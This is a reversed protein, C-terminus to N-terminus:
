LGSTAQLAALTPWWPPQGLALSLAVLLILLPHGSRLDNRGPSVPTRVGFIARLHGLVRRLADGRWMDGSPFSDMREGQTFTCMCM